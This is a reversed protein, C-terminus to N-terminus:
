WLRAWWSQLYWPDTGVSSVISSFDIDMWPSLMPRKGFNRLWHLLNRNKIPNWPPLFLLQNIVESKIEQWKFLHPSLESPM